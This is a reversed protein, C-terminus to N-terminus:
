PGSGDTIRGHLSLASFIIKIAGVELKLSGELGNLTMVGTDKTNKTTRYPLGSLLVKINETSKSVQLIRPCIHSHPTDSHHLFPHEVLHIFTPLQRRGIEIYTISSHHKM